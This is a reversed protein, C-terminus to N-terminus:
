LNSTETIGSMTVDADEPRHRDNHEIEPAQLRRKLVFLRLLREKDNIFSYNLSTFHEYKTQSTQNLKKV